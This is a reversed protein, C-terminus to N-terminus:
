PLRRFTKGDGLSRDLQSAIQANRQSAATHHAACDSPKSWMSEDAICYRQERQKPTHSLKPVLRMRTQALVQIV